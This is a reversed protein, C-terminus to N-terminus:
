KCQFIRQNFTSRKLSYYKSSVSCCDGTIDDDSFVIAGSHCAGSSSSAGGSVMTAMPDISVTGLAADSKFMLYKNENEGAFKLQSWLSAPSVSSGSPTTTTTSSSGSVLSPAQFAQNAGGHCSYIQARQGDGTGGSQIDVCKGSNVNKLESLGNGKSNFQFIQSNNAGCSRQELMAGDNTASNVVGLCKGSNNAKLRYGSGSAEVTFKQNAGKSCSYQQVQAGDSGSVGVIDLCKYASSAKLESTGSVGSSTTTTTTGAAAGDVEFTYRFGCLDPEMGVLTLEHAPAPTGKQRDFYTVMYQRLLSPDHRTITATEANQLQLIASVNPCGSPNCRAMGESSLSIRPSGNNTEKVFDKAANWRGLENATAVALASLYKWHDYQTDDCVTVEQAVEDFNSMAEDSAANSESLQSGDSMEAGGCATLLAGLSMTVLSSAISWHKM